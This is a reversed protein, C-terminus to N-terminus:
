MVSSSAEPKLPSIFCTRALRWDFILVKQYYTLRVPEESVAVAVLFLVVQGILDYIIQDGIAFVIGSMVPSKGRRRGVADVSVGGTKHDKGLVRLGEPLDISEEPALGLDGLIIQGHYAALERPFKVELIIHHLVLLGVPHLDYRLSIVGLEHLGDGAGQGVAPDSVLVVSQRFGLDERAPGM